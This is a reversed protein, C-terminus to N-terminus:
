KLKELEVIADEVPMLGQELLKLIDEQRNNKEIESAKTVKPVSGEQLLDIVQDLKARVTPYSIGLEKEVDKINGRSKIFIEVFDMQEKSLQMLKPFDFSNEIVTSCTDCKLKVAKLSGECVPCRTLIKIM